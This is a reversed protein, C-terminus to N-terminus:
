LFKNKLFWLNPFGTKLRVKSFPCIQALTTEIDCISDWIFVRDPKATTADGVFSTGSIGVVRIELIKPQNRTIFDVNKLLM